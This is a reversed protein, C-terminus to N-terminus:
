LGSVTPEGREALLANLPDLAYLPALDPLTGTLLGLEDADGASTALTAALPDSTFTLRDWAAALIEPDIDSGTIEAIESATLDRAAEPDAAIEDQAALTGELLATVLAPHEELFETRVILQTTVFQGDPWLDSEDVLEVGGSQLLLSATPEPVWAGAIQGQQFAKVTVGNDQPLIAIDGGGDADTAYGQEAFYARAAIDQTNALGPTAVTQGVLDDLSDVGPQVILSAGGSTVGSIVRVGDGGSSVYATITPSPGIFTADLGGALLAQVTDSGSNFTQTVLSAGEADLAEAFTGEAVGVLAPAHTLNPFYGLRVETGADSGGATGPAADSAACGALLLAATALGAVASAIRLM